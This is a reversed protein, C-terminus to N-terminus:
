LTIKEKIMKGNPAFYLNKKQIENKVVQVRYQFKEGPLIIKQVVGNEWESYKSKEKADKVDGPLDDFSIEEETREWSADNKYYAVLKKDGETFTASYGTIKDSWEISDAKPYQVKLAETVTSPIKRIQASSNLNFLCSAIVLIAFLPKM